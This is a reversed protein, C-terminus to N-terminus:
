YKLFSFLVSGPHHGKQLPLPEPDSSEAAAQRDLGLEKSSGGALSNLLYNFAPMINSCLIRRTTKNDLFSQLLPTLLVPFWFDTLPILPFHPSPKPLTLRCSTNTCAAPWIHQQLVQMMLHSTIFNVVSETKSDKFSINIKTTLKKLNKTASPLRASGTCSCNTVYSLNYM